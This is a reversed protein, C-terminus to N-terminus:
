VPYPIAKSEPHPQTGPRLAPSYNSGGRGTSRVKPKKYFGSLYWQLVLKIRSYADEELAARRHPPPIGESWIPPGPGGEAREWRGREKRKLRWESASFGPGEGAAWGGFLLKGGEGSM